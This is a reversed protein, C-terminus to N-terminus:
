MNKLLKFVDEHRGIEFLYLPFVDSFYHLRKLPFQNLFHSYDKNQESRSLILKFVCINRIM